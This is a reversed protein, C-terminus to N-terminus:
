IIINVFTGLEDIKCKSRNELRSRRKFHDKLHIYIIFFYIKNYGYFQMNPIRQTILSHDKLAVWLLM